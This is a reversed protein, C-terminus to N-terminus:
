ELVRFLNKNKCKCVNGKIYSWRGEGYVRFVINKLLFLKRGEVEKDKRKAKKSVRFVGSM